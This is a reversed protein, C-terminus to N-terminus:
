PRLQEHPKTAPTLLAAVAPVGVALPSGTLERSIAPSFAVPTIGIRTRLQPILAISSGPSEQVLSDLAPWRRDVLVLTATRPYGRQQRRRMVRVLAHSATCDFCLALTATQASARGDHLTALEAQTQRLVEAPTNRLAIDTSDTTLPPAPQALLM